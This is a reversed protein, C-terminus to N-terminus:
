EDINLKQIGLGYLDLMEKYLDKGYFAQYYKNAISSVSVNTTSGKLTESLYAANILIHEYNVTNWIHPLLTYVENEQIADLLYGVESQLRLDQKSLKYGALDIYIRDPNWEIIQEKDISITELASILGAQNKLIPAASNKIGLLKFPLYSPSTSEIGHAGRYAIGGIYYSNDTQIQPFSAMESKIFNTLEEARESRDLIKGLSNLTNFFIDKKTDLDGYEFFIVPTASKLQLKDVEAKTKYCCIILDAKQAHVLEPDASNGSGIVPLERIEINAFVYAANRRRESEEIAIIKDTANLYTILRLAGPGHAIIRQPKAPFNVERGHDDTFTMMEQDSQEKKTQCSCILILFLLFQLTYALSRM